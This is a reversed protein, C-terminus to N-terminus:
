VSRTEKPKHLNNATVSGITVAHPHPRRRAESQLFGGTITAVSGLYRLRPPSYPKKM